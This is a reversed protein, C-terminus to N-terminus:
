RDLRDPTTSLLKQFKKGHMGISALLAVFAVEAKSM